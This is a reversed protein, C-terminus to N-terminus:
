PMLSALYADIEAVARTAGTLPLGATIQGQRLGLMYRIVMVGDTLAEVRGNGDIDLQRRIRALEISVDVATRTATTGMAGATIANGTYGLLYRLIMVGDTAADYRTSAGSVDIDLRALTDFTATVTCAASVAGTTYTNAGVATATGSCGSISLTIYGSLPTATCTATAGSAVTVTAGAAGGSTAACALSGGGAAPNPAATVTVNATAVFADFNYFYQEARVLRVQYTDSRLDAGGSGYDFYVVSAYDSYGALPSGSWFNSASANPFQTTNIAPNVCGLEAISKLENINPLRWDTQTANQTGATGANVSDARGLAQQWTYGAAGGTCTTGDWTQGEACRKWTLGTPIHRVTGSGADAIDADPTTAPYGAVVACNAAAWGSMFLLVSSLGACLARRLDLTRM